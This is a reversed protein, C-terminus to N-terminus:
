TDPPERKVWTKREAKFAEYAADGGLQRHANVLWQPINFYCDEGPQPMDRPLVGCSIPEGEYPEIPIVQSTPLYFDAGRFVTCKISRGRYELVRVRITPM